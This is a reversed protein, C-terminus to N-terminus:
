SEDVEVKEDEMNYVSSIGTLGYVDVWTWGCNACTVNQWAGGDDVQMHDADIDDCLCEPNPCHNPNDLYNQQKISM